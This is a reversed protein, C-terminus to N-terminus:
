KATDSQLQPIHSRTGQGPILGLGGANSTCLRLCQAMQSTGSSVWDQLCQGEAKKGSLNENVSETKKLLHLVM